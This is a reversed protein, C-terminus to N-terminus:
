LVVISDFFLLDFLFNGVRCFLDLNGCVDMYQQLLVLFSGKETKALLRHLIGWYSLSGFFDSRQNSEYIWSRKRICYLSFLHFFSNNLSSFSFFMKWVSLHKKRKTWNFCTASFNQSADGALWSCIRKKWQKIRLSRQQHRM